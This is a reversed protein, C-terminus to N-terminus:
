QTASVPITTIVPGELKYGPPPAFLSPDPESQSFETVEATTRGNYPDDQIHLMVIGSDHARWLESITEIPLLNGDEGAPTITVGRTGDCVVGAITRTGLNESHGNRTSREQATAIQKRQEETLPPPPSVSKPDPQHSVRAIKEEYDNVRWSITIRAVPDIVSVNFGPHFQGDAGIDCRQMTEGHFRGASDRYAHTVIQGHIANGDAFKEEHTTKITASFPAGAKSLGGYITLPLAAVGCPSPTQAPSTAAILGLTFAAVLTTRLRTM